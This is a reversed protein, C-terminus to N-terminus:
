SFGIGDLRCHLVEGTGEHVHEILKLTVSFLGRKPYFWGCKGGFLRLGSRNRLMSVDTVHKRPYLAFCIGKGEDQGDQEDM